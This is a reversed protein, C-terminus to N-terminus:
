RAVERTSFMSVFGFLMSIVSLCFSFIIEFETASKDMIFVVCLLMALVSIMAFALGNFFCKFKSARYRYVFNRM